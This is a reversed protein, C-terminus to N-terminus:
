LEYVMKNPGMIKAKYCAKEVNSLLTQADSGDEPFSQIGLSISIGFILGSTNLISNSLEMMLRRSFLIAGKKDTHPLIVGFKSSSFRFGMDESRKLNKVISGVEVIIKTAVSVNGSLYISEVGNVIFLVVSFCHGHRKSRNIEKKVFEEFFSGKYLGTFFDQLTANKIKEMLVLDFVSPNKLYNKVRFMYDVVTASIHINRGLVSVINKHYKEIEEWLSRATEEEFSLGTLLFILKHFFKPDRTKRQVSYINRIQDTNSFIANYLELMTKDETEAILPSSYYRGNSFVIKM